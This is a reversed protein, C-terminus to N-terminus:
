KVNLFYGNGGNTFLKKYENHIGLKESISEISIRNLLAVTIPRKNDKFVLSNIFKKAIDSTLVKYVFSAENKKDFGLM